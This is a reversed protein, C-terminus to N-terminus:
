GKRIEDYIKQAEDVISEADNLSIGNRTRRFIREASDIIKELDRKGTDQKTKSTEGAGTDTIDSLRDFELQVTDSFTDEGIRSFMDIKRQLLFLGNKNKHADYNNVIYQKNPTLVSTDIDSKTITLQKDKNEIKAKVNKVM